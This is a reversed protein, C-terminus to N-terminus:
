KGFVFTSKLKGDVCWDPAARQLLGVFSECPDVSAAPVSEWHDLSHDFSFEPITQGDILWASAAAASTRM